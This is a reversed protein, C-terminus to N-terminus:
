LLFDLTLAYMNFDDGNPAQNSESLWMQYGNADVSVANWQAKLAMKPHFDWRLGAAISSQSPGLSRYVTNAVQALAQVAVPMAQIDEQEFGLPDIRDYIRSLVMYPTLSRWKYGVSLYGALTRMGMVKPMYFKGAEAQVQWNGPQWSVGGSYYEVDAGNIDYSSALRSSSSVVSTPVSAWAAAFLSLLRPSDGIEARLYGLNFALDGQQYGFKIGVFPDYAFMFPEPTLDVGMMVDMKGGMVRTTLVGSDTQFQYSLDVGDYYDVFHEDYYESVPRVWLYSYSVDRTDSVFHIDHQNRGLRLGLNPTLEIDLYAFRFLNDLNNERREKVVVQVVLDTSSTLEGRLQAGVVTDLKATWSDSISATQKLDNQFALHNSESRAIGVTGFGRVQWRNQDFAQANVGAVVCCLLTSILGIFKVRERCSAM